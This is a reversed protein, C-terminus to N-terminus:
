LCVCVRLVGTYHFFAPATATPRVLIRYPYVLAHKTVMVTVEEKVFTPRPRRRNHGCRSINKGTILACVFTIIKRYFGEILLGVFEIATFAGDFSSVKNGKLNFSIYQCWHYQGGSNILDLQRSLRWCHILYTQWMTPTKFQVIQNLNASLRSQGDTNRFM